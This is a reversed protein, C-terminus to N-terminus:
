VVAVEVWESHRGGYVHRAGITAVGDAECSWSFQGIALGTAVGGNKRWQLFGEFTPTETDGAMDAPSANAGDSSRKSVPHATISLVGSSASCAINVPPLPNAYLHRPSVTIPVVDALTCAAKGRVNLPIVKVYFDTGADCAILAGDTEVIWIGAGSAHAAPATYHAGRVITSLKWSSEGEPDRGAFALLEEGVLALRTSSFVEERSITKFDLIDNSPTYQLSNYSDVPYSYAGYDADLTGYQALSKIKGVSKYDQGTTSIYVLAGICYPSHKEALILYVPHEAMEAMYDVEVVAVRSFAGIETSIPTYTSAQQTQFYAGAAINKASLTEGELTVANEEDLPHITARSVRFQVDIGDLNSVVRVVHGPRVYAARLSTKVRIAHRPSTERLLYDYGRWTALEADHFLRWDLTVPNHVGGTRYVLAPNSISIVEKTFENTIDTYEVSLDTPMSYIDVPEVEISEIDDILELDVVSTYDDETVIGFIGLNDVRLFASCASLVADIADAVSTQRDIYVNVGRNQSTFWSGAAVFLNTDIDAAGLGAVRLIDYVAVAPNIGSTLEVTCNFPINTPVRRMWFSYSPIHASNGCVMQTLYISSIGYLPTADSPYVTNNQGDNTSVSDAGGNEKSDWWDLIKELSEPDGSDVTVKEWTVAGNESTAGLFWGDVYYSYGTTISGGGGKSSQKIPNVTLNGYWTIIPAADWRGILHPIPLGRQNEPIDFDGLGQREPRTRNSSKGSGTLASLAAGALMLGLGVVFFM